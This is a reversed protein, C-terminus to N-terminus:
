KESQKKKVFRVLLKHSYNVRNLPDNKSLIVENINSRNRDDIKM